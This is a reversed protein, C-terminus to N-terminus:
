FMLLGTRYKRREYLHKAPAPKVVQSQGGIAMPPGCCELRLCVGGPCLWRLKLFCVYWEINAGLM